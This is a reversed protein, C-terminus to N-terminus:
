NFFKILSLKTTTMESKGCKGTLKNARVRPFPDRESLGYSFNFINGTISLKTLLIFCNKISVVVFKTLRRPISSVIIYHM